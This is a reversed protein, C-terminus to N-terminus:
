LNVSPFKSYFIQNSTPQATPYISKQSYLFLRKCHIKTTISQNLLPVINISLNLSTIIKGNYSYLGMDRTGIWLTGSKDCFLNYIYDNKFGDKTTMM